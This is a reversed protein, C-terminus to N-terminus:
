KTKTIATAKPEGQGPLPLSSAAQKKIYAPIGKYRDANVSIDAEKTFKRLDERFTSNQAGKRVALQEKIIDKVDEYKTVKAPRTADAKVIVWTGAVLFPKSYSEKQLGFAIDRIIQPIRKEDKSLWNLQGQSSKADPAESYQMAVASFETGNTLLKYAKDVKAKTKAVIVSLKVQASRKFPSNKAALAENYAKKVDADPIDVGKSLINILAQESRIKTKLDDETMGQAALMQPLDGGNEARLAKIKTEIQADTPEVNNKKALQAILQEAIIQEVVYQGALKNGEQTQVPIRELRQIFEDKSVKEGNVRIFGKRGCGALATTLIVLALLVLNVKNRFM